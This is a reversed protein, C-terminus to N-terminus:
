NITNLAVKLLIETIDHHHSFIYLFRLLILSSQICSHMDFIEDASPILIVPAFVLLFTAHM